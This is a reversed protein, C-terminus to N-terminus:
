YLSFNYELQMYMSVPKGDRNAPTFKIRRAARVAQETLGNPLAEVILIHKVTGDAAFIVKLVVTGEVGANRAENTYTPEPKSQLRPKETVDRGVFVEGPYSRSYIRLSEIQEKRIVADRDQNPAVASTQSFMAATRAGLAVSAPATLMLLILLYRNSHPVTRTQLKTDAVKV